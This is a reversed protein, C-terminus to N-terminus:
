NKKIEECYCNKCASLTLRVFYAGWVARTFPTALPRCGFEGQAHVEQRQGGPAPPGSDQGGQRRLAHAQHAGEVQGQAQVAARVDRVHVRPADHPAAHAAEAQGAPPVGPSLCTLTVVGPLRGTRTAVGPLSVTLTVVGPSLCTLTVVGPSLCTLTVVGPLRCTLTVVGPLWCTLTVVGPLSCTLTVVGPLWCTLTVVGPLWCTLTVVGPLWCTLTLVGPLSCTLTM